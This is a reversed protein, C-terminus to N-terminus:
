KISIKIAHPIDRSEGFFLCRQNTYKTCMQTSGGGDLMIIDEENIGWKKINNVMMSQTSADDIFFYYKEVECNQIFGCNNKRKVAIFTRPVYNNRQKNDLTPHLGLIYDSSYDFYGQSFGNFINVSTSNQRAFTRYTFHEDYYNKLINGNAKVPFSLEGNNENFFQGNIMAITKNNSYDDWYYSIDQKNYGSKSLGFDISALNADAEIVYLIKGTGSVSSYINVGQSPLPNVYTYGSPFAFVSKMTTFVLVFVILKIYKKM